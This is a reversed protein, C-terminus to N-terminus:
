SPSATSPAAVTIAGSQPANCYACHRNIIFTEGCNNCFTVTTPEDRDPFLLTHRKRQVEAVKTAADWLGDRVTFDPVNSMDDESRASSRLAADIMAPWIADPTGGQGWGADVMAETPERIAGLLQRASVMWYERSDADWPRGAKNCMIRAIREVMESM